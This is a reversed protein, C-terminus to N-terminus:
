HNSVTCQTAPQNDLCVTPCLFCARAQHSGAGVTPMRLIVSVRPGDRIAEPPEHKIVPHLKRFPHFIFVPPPLAITRYSFVSATLVLQDRTRDGPDVQNTSPSFWVRCATRQGECACLLMGPYTSSHPALYICAFYFNLADSLFSRTHFTVTGKPRDSGAAAEM